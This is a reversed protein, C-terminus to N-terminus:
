ALAPHVARRMRTGDGTYWGEIYDLAAQRVQASDSLTHATARLPLLGAVVLAPLPLARRARLLM